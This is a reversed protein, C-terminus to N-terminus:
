LAWIWEISNFRWDHKKYQINSDHVSAKSCLRPSDSEEGAEVRTLPHAFTLRDSDFPEYFPALDAGNENDDIGNEKNEGDDSFTGGVHTM